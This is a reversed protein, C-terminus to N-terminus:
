PGGSPGAVEVRPDLVGGAPLVEVEEGVPLALGGRGLHRVRRALVEDRQQEGRGGRVGAAVGGEGDGAELAAADGAAAHLEALAPDPATGRSDPPLPYSGSGGCEATRAASPPVVRIRRM